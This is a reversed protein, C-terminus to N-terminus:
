CLPAERYLSHMKCYWSILAKTLIIVHMFMALTWALQEIVKFMFKREPGKQIPSNLSYFYESVYKNSISVTIAGYTYVPCHSSSPEPCMWWM